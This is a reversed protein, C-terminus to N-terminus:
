RPRQRPAQRRRPAARGDDALSRDRPRARRPRAPGRARRGVRRGRDRARARRRARGGARVPAHSAAQWLRPPSAALREGTETANRQRPRTPRGAERLRSSGATHPGGSRLGNACRAPAAAASHARSEDGRAAPGSASAAAAASVCVSFDRDARGPHHLRSSEPTHVAATVGCRRGPATSSRPPTGPRPPRPRVAGAPDARPADPGASARPSRM